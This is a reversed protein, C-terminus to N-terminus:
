SLGGRSYMELVIDWRDHLHTVDAKIAEAIGLIKTQNAELESIEAHLAPDATNRELTAGLAQIAELLTYGEETELDEKTKTISSSATPRTSKPRAKVERVCPKKDNACKKCARRRGGTSQSCPTCM